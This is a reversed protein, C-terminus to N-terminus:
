PRLVYTTMEGRNKIAITGREEWPFLGKTADYVPQSVHVAGPVGHSEMRSAVNVTDGWLDYAFRRVGVLGAIVPGIHVGLRLVWGSRLERAVSIMELGCAVAVAAPNAHHDLLGATAMFCDGITKIKQVGHREAAGEFARSFEQLCDVVEAPERGECFSTFGVVDSFIVAVNDHRRTAVADHTTLEEAIPDPLIVRLLKDAKSLRQLRARQAAVFGTDIRIRFGRATRLATLRGPRHVPRIEDFFADAAPLRDPPALGRFHFILDPPDNSDPRQNLLLEVSRPPPNEGQADAPRGGPDTPERRAAESLYGCLRATELPTFRLAGCLEALKGRADVRAAETHLKLQGLFWPPGPDGADAAASSPTPVAAPPPTLSM